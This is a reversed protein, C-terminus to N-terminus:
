KQPRKNPKTPCPNKPDLPGYVKQMGAIGGTQVIYFQKGDASIHLFHKYGDAIRGLENLQYLHGSSEYAPVPDALPLDVVLGTANVCPQFVKVLPHQDKTDAPAGLSVDIPLETPMKQQASASMAIPGLTTLALINVFATLKRYTLVHDNKMRKNDISLLVSFVQLAEM